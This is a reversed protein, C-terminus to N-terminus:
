GIIRGSPNLFTAIPQANGNVGEFPRVVVTVEGYETDVSGTITITRTTADYEAEWSTVRIVGPTNAVESRILGSVLNTPPPKMQTWGQYDLGRRTDLRWEGLGTELRIRVRQLILDIGTIHRTFVPLDGTTTDLGVDYGSM